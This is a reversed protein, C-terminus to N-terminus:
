DGYDKPQFDPVDLGLDRRERAIKLQLLEINMDQIVTKNNAEAAKAEAILSRAIRADIMAARKIEMEALRADHLAVRRSHEYMRSIAILMAGIYPMAVLILPILCFLFIYEM